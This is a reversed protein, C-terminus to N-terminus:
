HEAAPFANAAHRQPELFFFAPPFFGFALFGFAGTRLLRLSAPCAGTLPGSGLFFGLFFAFAPGFLVAALLFISSIKTGPSLGFFPSIFDKM